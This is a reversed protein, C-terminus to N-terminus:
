FIVERYRRFLSEIALLLDQNNWGLLYAALCCGGAGVGEKVFGEEYVRFQPYLSDAFSFKTTLLCVGDLCGALGVTDGTSDWAVWPTTAVVVSSWNCSVKEGFYDSIAGMLGSIALMQTGGALMVGTYHSASIAMGAVVIQMPDGVAAVLRFPNIGSLDSKLGSELHELDSFFGAKALGQQVLSWKQEHNCRPHSSNVKGLADIGLAMLIGLATTTGGVVCESLMLYSSSSQCQIGLKEGWALGKEFLSEVMSYPLAEGCSLCKAPMGELHISPVAPPQPLGADFLYVPLNFAEIVARSIFSPSAGVTLPPLPYTPHPQVGQSLFEGDAIATYRRDDSTAGAASIGEILATETFGLVCVFLPKKGQYNKLWEQGLSFETLIQINNM